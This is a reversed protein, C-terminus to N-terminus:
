RANPKMSAGFDNLRHPTAPDTKIFCTIDNMLQVRPTLVTVTMSTLRFWVLADLGPRLVEGATGM